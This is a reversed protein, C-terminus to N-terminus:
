ALALDVAPPNIQTFQCCDRDLLNIHVQLVLVQLVNDCGIKLGTASLMVGTPKAGPLVMALLMVM